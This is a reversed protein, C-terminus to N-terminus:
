ALQGNPGAVITRGVELSYRVSPRRSKRGAAMVAGDYM